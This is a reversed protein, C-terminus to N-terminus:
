LYDNKYDKRLIQPFIKKINELNGFFDLHDEDINLVVAMDANM